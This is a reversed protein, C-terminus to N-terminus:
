SAASVGLTARMINLAEQRRRLAWLRSRGGLRHGVEADPVQGADPDSFGYHIWVVDFHHGTVSELAAKVARQDEIRDLEALTDIGGGIEDTCESVDEPARGTIAATVARFAHIDLKAAKAYEEARELNGDAKRVAAWWRELTRSPVSVGGNWRGGDASLARRARHAIDGGVYDRDSNLDFAKIAEVAALVVLSQADDDAPDNRKFETLAARLLPRYGELLTMMANEDGNQASAILARSEEATWRTRAATGTWINFM